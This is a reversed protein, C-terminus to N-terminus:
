PAPEPPPETELPGPSLAGFVDPALVGPPPEAQIEGITAMGTAPQVEVSIYRRNGASGAALWVSTPESRTTGGLPGFEVDSVQTTQSGSTHATVLECFPSSYPLEGLATFQRQPTDDGNVFPTAPLTNLLVNTGSHELFYRNQALDFELRYTSNNTVALNRAYAMDASLISATAQLHDHVSPNFSPLVIGALIGMISIVILLEVLSYGRACRRRRECPAPEVDLIPSAPTM